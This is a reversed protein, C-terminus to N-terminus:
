FLDDFRSTDDKREERPMTIRERSRPAEEVIEYDIYKGNRAEDAQRMKRKVQFKFLATAFLFAAVLPSAFITVLVMVIGTVLSTRLLHLIWKLYGTVTKYNLILAVILLVPAAYYVLKWLASAIFYIAVLVLVGFLIASLPDLRFLRRQM